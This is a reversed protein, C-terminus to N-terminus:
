DVMRLVKFVLLYRLRKFHGNSGVTRRKGTCTLIKLFESEEGADVEAQALCFVM